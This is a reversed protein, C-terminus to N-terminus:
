IDSFVKQRHKAVRKDSTMESLIDMIMRYEKPNDTVKKCLLDLALDHCTDESLKNYHVGECSPYLISYKKMKESRKRFNKDYSLWTTKEDM